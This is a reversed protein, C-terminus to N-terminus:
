ASQKVIDRVNAGKGIHKGDGAFIRRYLNTSLLGEPDCEAKLAHFKELNEPPLYRNATGARMTSDKAFYFRGGAELVLEDMEHCLKWLRARNGKTVPYDLALSYGDIGHTILFNDPIHMKTVGLFPVIGRKQSLRIQERFIREAHEKPVFSQYQILGGPKYGSKWDPVYDLLFHFAAHSQMYPKGAGPRSQALFKAQNILRMGPKNVFMGLFKHLFSKPFFGMLTDPLEQNAVRLSQAPMPDEDRGLQEAFHMEGRGVSRGTVFCDSWGVMYDMHDRNREFLEIQEEFSAAKAPIIRLSGSYIRKMKLTIRTFCGLMGFGSIAGHFLEAHSDRNVTKLEGTPLLFDFELIHNGFPGATYANKGHINMAACGGMTTFMTGSVVPPWWGDEVIYRWLDAIRVGPEVSIIGTEPNWELVRNMRGLDLVIEENNQFADGYSNGGGKFAITRGTKKATEFVQRVADITTPRYVHAMSRSAMGWAEVWELRDKPLVPRAVAKPASAPKGKIAVPTPTRGKM